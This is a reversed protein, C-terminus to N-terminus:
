RSTRQRKYSKRARGTKTKHIFYKQILHDSIDGEVQWSDKSEDSWRVLFFRKGGMMKTKLLEKAEHWERVDGLDPDDEDNDNSDDQESVEENTTIVPQDIKDERVQEVDIVEEPETQNPDTLGPDGKNPDVGTEGVKENNNSGQTASEWNLFFADRDAYCPKLRDSHIPHSIPKHSVADRLMYTNMQLRKTVYFPGGYQIAWKKTMGPKVKPTHVWVLTGLEYNVPKATRDYKEKYETQSQEINQKATDRMVKIKENLRDMYTDTDTRKGIKAPKLEIDIYTKPKRGYM